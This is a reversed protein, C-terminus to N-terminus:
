IIKIFDQDFKSFDINILKAIISEEFRYKIFKAPNGGVIAYAPVNTTVINGAAIIAGQGITIGSLIVAGYGIWVDDCIKIDGKSLAEYAQGCVKIKFPFTLICHYPHESGFIFQM